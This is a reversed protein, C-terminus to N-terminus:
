LLLNHPNAGFPETTLKAAKAIYAWMGMSAPTGAPLAVNAATKGTTGTKVYKGIVTASLNGQHDNGPLSRAFDGVIVTVVNHTAGLGAPDHVRSLFKQLAPIIAGFRTREASGNSGHTDFDNASFIGMVNSGARIMLEAAALKSEFRNDVATGGLGYAAPLSAYDFPPPVKKLASVTTEYGDRLAVSSVPSRAFLDKTMGQAAAVGAAAIRRDPLAADGGVLADITPRMDAIRQLSVDGEKPAPHQLSDGVQVCKIAAEGGMEKALRVAFSRGSDSWVTNIAQAHDSSGHRNGITAMHALAFAPLAGLTAKDVVLGNALPMINGGSAQFAGAGAFSDASCFVSNYGGLLHIVVVASKEPAAAFASEILGRGALRTGVLAGSAVGMAKLFGRRSFGSKM